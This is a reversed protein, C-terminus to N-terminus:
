AEPEEKEPIVWDSPDGGNRLGNCWDILPCKMCKDISGCFDRVVRLAEFPDLPQPEPVLEPDLQVLEAYFVSKDLDDTDPIVERRTLTLGEGLYRNVREDFCDTRTDWITKIKM